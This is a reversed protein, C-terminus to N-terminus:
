WRLGPAVMWAPWASVVDFLVVNNKGRRGAYSRMEHPLRTISTCGRQTLTVAAFDLRSSGLGVGSGARRMRPRTPPKDTARWRCSSLWHFARQCYMTGCLSVSVQQGLCLLSGLRLCWLQPSFPRWFLSNSRAAHSQVCFNSTVGTLATRRVLGSLM